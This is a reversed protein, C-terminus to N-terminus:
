FSITREASKCVPGCGPGNALHESYEVTVTEALVESGDHDISLTVTDPAGYLRFGLKADPGAVSEFAPEPCDDSVKTAGGWGSYVNPDAPEGAAPVVFTCTKKQDDWALEITWTGPELSGGEPQVTLQLQDDCGISTCDGGCAVVFAAILFLSINKM